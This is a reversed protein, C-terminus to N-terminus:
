PALNVQYSLPWLKGTIFFNKTQPDYAIGNLVANNRTDLFPYENQVRSVLSSLDYKAVVHGTSPDIKLIYPYQWQNAYIFGDVFELENLNVAPVGSETVDLQKVASFGQPEYFYLQNSGNSVIIHKGDTAAGWGETQIPAEKIKTFDSVHYIHVVKEKWTLQYLTDNLVTIGEGFYKDELKVENLVKGSGPELKLLKSNGYNGTGVLLNGNHFEYGQTFYSTDHPISSIISWTKVPVPPQSPIEGGNPDDDNCASIFFVILILCRSAFKM